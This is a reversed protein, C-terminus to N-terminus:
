SSTGNSTDNAMTTTDDSVLTMSHDEAKTTTSERDAGSLPMESSSTLAPASNPHTDRQDSAASQKAAGSVGASSSDVSASQLSPSPLPQKQQQQQHQQQQPMRGSSNTNSSSNPTSHGVFYGPSSVVGRKQQEPSAPQTSERSSSSPWPKPTVSTFASGSGGGSGGGNGGGSSSFHPKSADRERHEAEVLWQPMPRPSKLPRGRPNGTATPPPPARSSSPPPHSHSYPAAPRIPPGQTSSTSPGPMAPSGKQLVQFSREQMESQKWRQAALYERADVPYDAIPVLPIGPLTIPPRGVNSRRSSAAQASLPVYGPPNTYLQQTGPAVRWNTKSENPANFTVQSSAHRVDAPPRGLRPPPGPKATIQADKEPLGDPGFGPLFRPRRDTTSWGIPTKRSAPPPRPAASIGRDTSSSRIGIDQMHYDGPAAAATGHRPVEPPPMSYQGGPESATKGNTMARYQLERDMVRRRRRRDENQRDILLQQMSPVQDIHHPHSEPRHHMWPSPPAQQPPVPFSPPPPAQRSYTPKAGPYLFSLDMSGHERDAGNAITGGQPRRSVGNRMACVGCHSCESGSSSDSDYCSDGCTDYGNNEYFKADQERDRKMLTHMPSNATAQIIEQKIRSIRTQVLKVMARRVAVKHSEFTNRANKCAVIFNNEYMRQYYNRRAEVLQMRAARREEIANLEDLLGSHTGNRILIEEKDLGEAKRDIVSRKLKDFEDYLEQLRNRAARYNQRITRAGEQEGIEMDDDEKSSEDSDSWAVNGEHEEIEGYTAVVLSYADECKDDKLLENSKNICEELLKTITAAIEIREQMKQQQVMWGSSTRSSSRSGYQDITDDDSSQMNKSSRLRRKTPVLSKTKSKSDSSSSRRDQEQDEQEPFQGQELSSKRGREAAQTRTERNSGAKAGGGEESDDGMVSSERSLREAPKKLSKARTSMPSNARSNDRTAFETVPTILPTGRSDRSAAPSKAMSNNTGPSSNNNSNTSTNSSNTDRIDQVNAPTSPTSSSQKAGRDRSSTATAQGGSSGQTRLSRRDGTTNAAEDSARASARTSPM